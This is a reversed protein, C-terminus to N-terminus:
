NNVNFFKEADQADKRHFRHNHDVRNLSHVM